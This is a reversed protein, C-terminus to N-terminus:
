HFIIDITVEQCEVVTSEIRELYNGIVEEYTEPTIEAIVQRINTKLQEKKSQWNASM